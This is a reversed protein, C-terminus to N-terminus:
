TPGTGFFDLQHALYVLTGADVQTKRAAVWAALARPDLAPHTRLEADITDLIHHLFIAEEGSYHSHRAGEESAAGGASAARPHVVWDSAGAALIAAGSAPLQVFLNRGTKSDGARVGDRVREDMSRHYLDLIKAELASEHPPLFITEGDFNVTFWYFGGPRLWRWLRPLTAPVDVLDLFANAILLDTTHPTGEYSAADAHVLRVEVEVDAGNRAGHLVLRDAAVRECGLGQRLAWAPLFRRAEALVSADSDVATYVANRLFGWEIGRAVMTGTGAGLELVRLPAGPEGASVTAKLTEIVGRHLARDDVTRKAELYRLFDETM